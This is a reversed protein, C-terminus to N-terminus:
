VVAPKACWASLETVFRVAVLVFSVERMSYVGSLELMVGYLDLIRCDCTGLCIWITFWFLIQMWSFSLYELLAPFKCLNELGEYLIENLIDWLSGLPILFVKWKGCCGVDTIGSKKKWKRELKAVYIKKDQFRVKFKNSTNVHWWKTIWKINAVLKM